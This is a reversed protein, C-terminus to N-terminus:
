PRNRFRHRCRRKTRVSALIPPSLRRIWSSCSTLDSCERLVATAFDKYSQWATYLLRGKYTHWRLVSKEHSTFSYKTECGLNLRKRILSGMEAKSYFTRRPVVSVISKWILRNDEKYHEKRFYGNSDKVQTLLEHLTHTICQDNYWIKCEEEASYVNRCFSQSSNICFSYYELEVAVLPIKQLATHCAQRIEALLLDIDKQITRGDTRMLQYLRQLISFQVHQSVGNDFPMPLADKPFALKDTQPSPFAFEIQSFQNVLPLYRCSYNMFVCVKKHNRRLQTNWNGFYEKLVPTSINGEPDYEQFIRLRSDIRSALIPEGFHEGLINGMIGITCEHSTTSKFSSTQPHALSAVNDLNITFESFCYSNLNGYKSQISGLRSTESTRTIPDKRYKNNWDAEQLGKTSKVGPIGSWAKNLEKLNETFTRRLTPLDAVSNNSEKLLVKVFHEFLEGAEHITRCEKDDSFFQKAWDMELYSSVERVVNGIYYKKFFGASLRLDEENRLWQYFLRENIRFKKLQTFHHVTSQIPCFTDLDREYYYDLVKLKEHISAGPLLESHNAAVASSM